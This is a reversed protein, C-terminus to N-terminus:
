QRLDYRGSGADKLGPFLFDKSISGDVPRAARKEIVELGQRHRKRLEPVREALHSVDHKSIFECLQRLGKGCDANYTATAFIDFLNMKEKRPDLDIHFVTAADPKVKTPIWPVDVDLALIVNANKVPPGAGNSRYVMVPHNTPFSM